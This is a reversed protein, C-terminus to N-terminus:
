QLQAQVVERHSRRRHPPGPQGGPRAARDPRGTTAHRGAALPNETHCTSCSWDTGHRANFWGQGRSASFANFAPDAARAASQLSQLYASPVEALTPGSLALLLAAM